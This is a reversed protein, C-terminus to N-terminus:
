GIRIVNWSAKPLQVSLKAGDLKGGQVTQPKVVEGKPGNVALLNDNHLTSHEIIKCGEFGYLDADLEMAEDLSRNVAFITLKGDAASGAENSVAVTELYPVDSYEKSDYKPSSVPGRLVTGRGYTSAQMFPYFITQRWAPGGIETMIPAIVNVLQALCAIKVRDAHKLLAIMMCGVVLADEMTYIDELRPPSEIWKEIKTDQDNSHYWVNWEDFSLHIQKKSRKKAQVLDCIGTVTKIFLETELSKALFNKTDGDRNDFYQHLSLYDFNEYGESLVTEEWDGFTPMRAGSSGCAVVEISPDTWKMLKAAESAVRGYDKAERHCIQWPGDMENGLCWLKINHPDQVGHSKRLDSWYSGGPFNSYEVVNRATEPGGTGLNVAYMVESGAKKAWSAFENLGIRNSEKTMWALDLREPRKEVPGVSDQWNFGSVFNGGPYRVIPVKCEEVLKIVDKRFGESDAEPHGPEYIGRYVARGLHEIFSGYIRRDTEGIAFEKHLTLKAKM